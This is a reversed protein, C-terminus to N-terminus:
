GSPYISNQRTCFGCGSQWLRRYANYEQQFVPVAHQLIRCIRNLPCYWGTGQQAYWHIQNFKRIAPWTYSLCKSRATRYGMDHRSRCGNICCSWHRTWKEYQPNKWVCSKNCQRKYSNCPRNGSKGSSSQQLRAGLRRYCGPFWDSQWQPWFLSFGHGSGM